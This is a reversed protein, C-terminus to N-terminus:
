FKQIKIKLMIEMLQQYLQIVMKLLFIKLIGNLHQILYDMDLHDLFLKMITKVLLILIDKKTLQKMGDIGLIFIKSMTFKHVMIKYLM